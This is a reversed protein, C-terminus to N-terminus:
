EKVAEEYVEWKNNEYDWHRSDYFELHFTIDFLCLEFQLGAHDRGWPTFDFKLLFLEYVQTSMGKTLQISLNKNKSLNWDECILDHTPKKDSKKSWTFPGIRFAFM